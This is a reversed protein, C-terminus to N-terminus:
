FKIEPPPNLPSIKDLALCLLYHADSKDRSERVILGDPTLRLGEKILRRAAAEVERLQDIERYLARVANAPTEHSDEIGLEHVVDDLLDCDSESMEDTEPPSALKWADYTDKWSDDRWTM